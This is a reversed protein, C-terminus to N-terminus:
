TQLFDFPNFLLNSQVFFFYIGFHGLSEIGSDRLCNPATVDLWIIQSSSLILLNVSYEDHVSHMTRHKVKRTWNVSDESYFLYNSSIGMKSIIFSLNLSILSSTWPDVFFIHIIKYKIIEVVLNLGLLVGSGTKRARHWLAEMLIALDCATCGSGRMVSVWFYYKLGWLLIDRLTSPAM